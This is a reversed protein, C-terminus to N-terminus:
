TPLYEEMDPETWLLIAQPLTFAILIAALVFGFLLEDASLPLWSLPRAAKVRVDSALLLLVGLMIFIVQYAKYHAWDRQHLEREDNLYDSDKPVQRYRRFAVMLPSPPDPLRNNFLKILGGFYHGGLFWRNVLM